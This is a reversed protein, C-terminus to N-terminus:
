TMSVRQLSKLPRNIRRRGGREANFTPGGALTFASIARKIPRAELVSRRRWLFKFCKSFALNGSFMELKNEDVEEEAEVSTSQFCM